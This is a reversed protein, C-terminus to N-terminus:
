LYNLTRIGRAQGGETTPPCTASAGASRRYLGHTRKANEGAPNTERSKDVTERSGGRRAEFQWDQFLPRKQRSHLVEIPSAL